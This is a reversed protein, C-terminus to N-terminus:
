IVMVAIRKECDGGFQQVKRIVKQNKTVARIETCGNAIAFERLRAIGADWLEDSMSKVSALAYISLYKISTAEEKAIATVMVGKLEGDEHAAWAMIGGSMIGRLIYSLNEETFVEDTDAAARILSAKILPWDHGLATPHIKSLRCDQVEQVELAEATEM